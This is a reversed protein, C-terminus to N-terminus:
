QEKPPYRFVYYDDGADNYRKLIECVKFGHHRFFLHTPLSDDPVPALIYNPPMHEAKIRDLVESGIGHRRINRDLVFSQIIVHGRERQVIYYGCIWPKHITRIEIAKMAFFQQKLAWQFDKRDYGKDGMTSQELELIRGIDSKDMDRIVITDALFQRQKNCRPM